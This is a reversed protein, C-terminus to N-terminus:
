GFGPDREVVEGRQELVAVGEARDDLAKRLPEAAVLDVDDHARPSPNM